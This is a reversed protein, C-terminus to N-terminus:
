QYSPLKGELKKRLEEYSDLAIQYNKEESEDRETITVEQEPEEEFSFTRKWFNATIEESGTESERLIEALRTLNAIDDEQYMDRARELRYFVLFDCRRIM